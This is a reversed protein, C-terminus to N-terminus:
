AKSQAVYELLLLEEEPVVETWYLTRASFQEPWPKDETQELAVREFYLLRLGEAISVYVEFPVTTTNQSGLGLVHPFWKWTHVVFVDLM